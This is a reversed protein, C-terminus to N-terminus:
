VIAEDSVFSRVVMIKEWKEREIQAIRKQNVKQGFEGTGILRNAMSVRRLINVFKKTLVPFSFFTGERSIINTCVENM